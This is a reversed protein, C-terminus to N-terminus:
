ILTRSAIVPVTKIHNTVHTHPMSTHWDTGATGLSAGAFTSALGWGAPGLQYVTRPRVELRGVVRAFPGCDFIDANQSQRRSLAHRYPWLYFSGAATLHCGIWEFVSTHPIFPSCTAENCLHEDFDFCYIDDNQKALQQCTRNVDAGLKSVKSRPLQCQAKHNAHPLFLKPSCELDHQFDLDGENCWTDGLLLLSAHRASVLSHLEQGHTCIWYGHSVSVVDGPRLQSELMDKVRVFHYPEEFGGYEWSEGSRHYWRFQFKGQVAQRLEPVLYGAHSDSFLYLKPIADHGANQYPATCEHMRAESNNESADCFFVDDLMPALIPAEVNYKFCARDSSANAGAGSLYCECTAHGGNMLKGGSLAGLYDGPAEALYLKGLMILLAAWRM